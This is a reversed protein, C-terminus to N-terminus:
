GSVGTVFSCASANRQMGLRQGRRDRERAVLRRLTPEPAFTALFALAVNALDTMLEVCDPCNCEMDDVISPWM